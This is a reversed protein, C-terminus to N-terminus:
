IASFDAMLPKHDSSDIYNLDFVNILRLGRSYIHDLKLFGTRPVQIPQLGIAILSQNLYKMRGSNWTNFDGAVLLPGKHLSIKSILQNIHIEFSSNTVFNIAHINAVLLNESKGDIAFESILFTKSTKLLPEKVTSVVSEEYVPKATSGTAVGTYDGNRRQFSKTQTWTLKPNASTLKNTFEVQSVSEQFLALDTKQAVNKFDQPLKEDLGKHINWVLVRITSPLKSHLNKSEGYSVTQSLTLNFINECTSNANTNISAIVFTAFISLKLINYKNNFLQLSKRCFAQKLNVNM